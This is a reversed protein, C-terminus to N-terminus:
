EREKGRGGEKEGDKRLRLLGRDRDRDLDSAKAGRLDEPPHGTELLLRLIIRENETNIAALPTGAGLLQPEPIPVASTPSVTSYVIHTFLVPFTFRV